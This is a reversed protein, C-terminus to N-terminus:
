VAFRSGRSRGIISKKFDNAFEMSSRKQDDDRADFSKDRAGMRNDEFSHVFDVADGISEMETETYTESEKDKKNDKKKKKGKNVADELSFMDMYESLAANLTGAQDRVDFTGRNNHTGLTHGLKAFGKKFTQLDELNTIGDGKKAIEYAGDVKKNWKGEKVMQEKFGDSGVIELFKRNDYDNNSSKLIDRRVDDATREEGTGQSRGANTRPVGYKDADIDAQLSSYYAM